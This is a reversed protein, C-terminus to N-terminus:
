AVNLMYFPLTLESINGLHQLVSVAITNVGIITLAQWLPTPVRVLRQVFELAVFLGVGVGVMVIRLTNSSVSSHAALLVLILVSLALDYPKFPRFRDYLSEQM